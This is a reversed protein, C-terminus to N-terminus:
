GWGGEGPVGATAGLSSWLWVTGKGERSTNIFINLWEPSRTVEPTEVILRETQHSNATQEKGRRGM